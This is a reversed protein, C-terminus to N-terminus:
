EKTTTLLQECNTSKVIGELTKGTLHTCNNNTYLSNGYEMSTLVKERCWDLSCRSFAIMKQNTRRQQHILNSQPCLCTFDGKDSLSLKEHEDQLTYLFLRISSKNLAWAKVAQIIADWIELGSDSNYWKKSFFWKLKNGFTVGALAWNWAKKKREKIASLSGYHFCVLDTFIIPKRLNFVKLVNALKEFRFPM